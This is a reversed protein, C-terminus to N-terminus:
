EARSAYMRCKRSTTGRSATACMSASRASAASAIICRLMRASTGAAASTSRRAASQVARPGRLGDGRRPPATSRRATATVVYSGALKDHWTQKEPDWLMWFYGVLLPIASLIRGFYRGTAAGYGIPGGTTSAVVRIGLARKGLTQGEGGPGELYIYYALGGLFGVVQGAAPGAVLQILLTPVAIVLGDLLAAAFRVWFGARETPAGGPPGPPHEYAAGYSKPSEQDPRRSAAPARLTCRACSAATRRRRAGRTPARAAGVARGAGSRM